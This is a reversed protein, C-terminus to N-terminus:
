AASVSKKGLGQVVKFCLDHLWETDSGHHVLDPGHSAPFRACQKFPVEMIFTSQVRTRHQRDPAVEVSHPRTAASIEITKNELAPVRPSLNPPWNSVMESFSPEADAPAVGDAREFFSASAPGKATAGAEMGPM